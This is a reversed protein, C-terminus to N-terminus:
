LNFIIEETEVGTQGSEITGASGGLGASRADSTLLAVESFTKGEELMKMAMTARSRATDTTEAAYKRIYISQLDVRDVPSFAAPIEQTWQRLSSFQDIVREFTPKITGRDIM